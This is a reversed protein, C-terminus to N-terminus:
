QHILNYLEVAIDNTLILALEEVSAEKIKKFSKFKDNLLKKRAPGIGKVEDLISKTMAKKRLQKHYTIAFNHVEDQLNAFLIFESSNKDLTIKELYQNILVSTQHKDDKALGCVPIKLDFDNLISLCANIQNIGGDMIILDPLILDEKIARFYRRYLVEKMSDTDSNATHLRYKRYESKKFGFDEYVVQGAVSFTGQLHSIDFIEIRNLKKLKLVKKINDIADIHFNEQLILSEFKLKLNKDANEYALDILKKHQGLQPKIITCDLVAELNEVEVTNPLYVKKMIPNKQYYQMIFSTFVDNEDDYLPNIALEREIFKGNRIFLGFIAIFGRYTAYNFYDANLKNDFQVIQKDSIHNISKIIEHTQQAKEYQMNDSYNILQGNLEKIIDSTDGNLFKIIKSRMDGYASEQLQYECPGLCQGMHYYLCVKKPIQKCKRLPYIQNLLKRISHAAFADPYPGFYKSKNDKKFERVVNLTPYKDMTLKLYPYSKDDMFMINYRPRHKKILNIELLLAEKESTTVIYDFDDINSVLKTTKFNHAGVFYQNVRSKLKKAKGVYIIKGSDDKMLYCGPDLPLSKLKSLLKDNM